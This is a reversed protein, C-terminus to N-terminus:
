GTFGFGNITLIQYGSTYGVHSSMDFIVPVNLARYCTQNDYSCHLSKGPAVNAWGVEWLMKLDNKVGITM